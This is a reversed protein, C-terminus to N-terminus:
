SQAGQAEPEAAQRSRLDDLFGADMWYIDPRGNGPADHLGLLGERTLRGGSLFREPDARDSAFFFYNGDPSVYSSSARTGPLNIPEGLNVARTWRDDEDRFAVYYDIEGVNRESGRVCLILYSEDPAVFANVNDEGLNVQPGLVEPETYAGDVWRSRVIVAGGNRPSRTFYITGDRTLSPYYEFDNTTIPAPLAEPESWGGGERVVRFINQNGWGPRPAQGPAPRNSLFYLSQGDASLAPEFCALEPDRSFPAFDPETWRGQELRTHLVAVRGGLGVGFFIERGDATVALDRNLLGNSVIGPAFLEPEVGPPTQGLYPGHLEPFRAGWPPLGAGPAQRNVTDAAAAGNARVPGAGAATKPRAPEVGPRLADLFTAEVWYIGANGGQPRNRRSLLEGYSPPPGAGNPAARDSMFFFYRGDSSVYPSWERPAASNVPEGLPMPETWRDEGDRFSVYYDTGGLSDERGVIPVILYSEDPAVFANFRARGGQLVEPLLEPEAFGDGERRARWLRNERTEPDSRTFYLTGDRTLSPFFEGGVTNVPPGLNRPEGWGDGERDMFWIDQDGPEEQGDPRTSLFYFREGDPAIAPELDIWEAHGSFPAVAPATWRGDIRKSVLIAAYRYGESAICFYIEDGDPTIAVDRTLMGTTVLGPAFLEPTPGPPPQGLYDGTLMPFAEREEVGRCGAAMLLALPLLGLATRGVAPSVSVL